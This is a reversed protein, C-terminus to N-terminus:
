VGIRARRDDRASSGTLFRVGAAGGETWRVQGEITGYGPLCLTLSEGYVIPHDSWLQCGQYSINCVAVPASSGDPWHGVGTLGVRRRDPRPSWDIPEREM